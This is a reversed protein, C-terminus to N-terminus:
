KVIWFEDVFENECDFIDYIRGYLSCTLHAYIRMIIRRNPYQKAIQKVTRGNGFCSKLGFNQELLSRYCSKVIADCSYHRANQNLMREVDYYDIDLATSIARCVCDQEIKNQPNRNYYVYSM